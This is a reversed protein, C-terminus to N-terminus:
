KSEVHAPTDLQKLRVRLRRVTESSFHRSTSASDDRGGGPGSAAMIARAARVAGEEDGSGGAGGGVAVGNTRTARQVAVLQNDRLTVNTGNNRMRPTDVFNGSVELDRITGNWVHLWESAGQFTHYAHAYAVAVAANM